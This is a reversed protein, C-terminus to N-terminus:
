ALLIHAFVGELGWDRQLLGLVHVGYGDDKGVVLEDNDVLGAAHQANRALALFLSITCDRANSGHKRGGCARQNDVAEVHVRGAQQDQAQVWIGLAVEAHLEFKAFSLFAIDGKNAAQDFDILTIDREGHASIEGIPRILDDIVLLAPWSLGMETDHRPLSIPSTDLKLGNGPSTMLQTYVGRCRPFSASQSMWDQAIDEVTVTCSGWAQHEM